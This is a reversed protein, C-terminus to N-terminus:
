NRQPIKPEDNPSPEPQEPPLQKHAGTSSTPTPIPDQSPKSIPEPKQALIAEQVLPDIKGKWYATKVKTSENIVEQWRGNKLAKDVVNFIVEDANWEAQWKATLSPAKKGIQSNAPIVKTLAIAEKLKGQEYQKTAIALLQVSWQAALKQSETYASSNASIKSITVIAEELRNSQALEKAKTLRLNSETYIATATQCEKLLNQATTAYQSTPSIEKALNICEQNKGAVKLSKIAEIKATSLKDMEAQQWFAYGAIGSITVVTGFGLSVLAFRKKPQSTTPPIKTTSKTAARNTEKPLKDKKPVLEQVPEMSNSTTTEDEFGSIKPLLDFISSTPAQSREIYETDPNSPTATFLSQTEPSNVSKNAAPKVLQNTEEELNLIPTVVPENKPFAETPLQTTKVFQATEGLDSTPKAISQTEPLSAPIVTKVSVITTAAITTAASIESPLISQLAELAEEATQYRQLFYPCVMKDLFDALKPSISPVINRWIIEGTKSDQPLNNPQVGTLAHICMIGTAYIDSAFKPRGNAQEDPMYGISGVVITSSAHGQPDLSQLSTEKVAGFDILVIKSDSSRRILNSPKIDRHIVNQQHVFDLVQLVGELLEYTYFESLRKGPVIELSLVHGEVLEQALYFENEDEFHAKLEPIRDHKGLKYLAQAERDFLKRAAELVPPRTDMPKLQKIVCKPHGPLHMDEAIFTQGFGGHGLESSIKFRSVLTKGLM